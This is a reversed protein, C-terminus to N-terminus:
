ANDDALAYDRLLECATAVQEDYWVACATAIDCGYEKAKESIEEQNSINLYSLRTGTYVSASDNALEYFDAEPLTIDNTVIGCADAMIEYDLEFTGTQENLKHQIDRIAKQVEEPLAENIIKIQEREDEVKKSIYANAIHELKTKTDM